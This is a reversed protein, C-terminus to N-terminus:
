QPSLLIDATQVEAVYNQAVLRGEVGFIGINITEDSRTIYPSTWTILYKQREDRYCLGGAPYPVYGAKHPDVTVSDAYRIAHLHEQTEARLTDLPVFGEREDGPPSTRPSRAPQKYDSPLMSAFYGGWAADAHIMFSLGKAQFKDRLDVIKKLPDVGGEETTGIVAVVSFVAQKEKLSAYLRRKLDKIDIRAGDDVDISVM